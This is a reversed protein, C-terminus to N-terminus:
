EESGRGGTDGKMRERLLRMARVLYNEVSKIPMGLEHAIEKYSLEQLWRLELVERFRAPLTAYARRVEEKAESRELEEHPTLPRASMAPSWGSSAGLERLSTELRDHRLHDICSNRVAVRLYAGLRTDAPLALRDRWVRLFAEMVVDQAIADSSVIKGAYKILPTAHFRFADALSDARGDRIGSVWEAERPDREPGASVEHPSRRAAVRRAVPSEPAGDRGPRGSPAREAFMTM